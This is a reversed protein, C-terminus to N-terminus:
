YLLNSYKEARNVFPEPIERGIALETNANECFHSILSRKCDCAENFRASVAVPYSRWTRIGLPLLRLPDFLRAFSGRNGVRITKEIVRATM